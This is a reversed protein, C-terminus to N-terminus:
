YLMSYLKRRYKLAISDGDPLTAIVDLYTKKADGFALDKKLVSYLAELAEEKRGVQNYQIALQAKLELNNPDEASKEQLEKIEPSDLAELALELKAKINTYYADQDIMPISAILSKADELKQIKLCIDAFVLKIRANEPNIAYAKKAFNYANDMDGKLLAQKAQELILDDPSPLHKSLAERIQADTQPGALMDVPASAKILVLAPITQIGIQQALQQALTQETECNLKALILHEPYEAAITTVIATQQQSEPSSPSYFEILVLKNQSDEGLIKQFNESTLDLTNSM